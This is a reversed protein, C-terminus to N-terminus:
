GALDHRDAEISCASSFASASRSSSLSSRIASSRRRSQRFGPMSSRQPHGRGYRPWSQRSWMEEVDGAANKAAKKTTKGMAAQANSAEAVLNGVTDSLAQMDVRIAELDNQFDKEPTWAM